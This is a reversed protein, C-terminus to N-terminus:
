KSILCKAFFGVYNITVLKIKGTQQTDLIAVKVVCFLKILRWDVQSEHITNGFWVLGM